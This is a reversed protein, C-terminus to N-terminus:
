QESRADVSEIWAFVVAALQVLETHLETSHEGHLVAAEASECLEEIAIHLWSLTGDKEAADCDARADAATSLDFNLLALDPYKSPPLTPHRQLGWKRNQAEREIVVDPWLKSVHNYLAEDAAAISEVTPEPM